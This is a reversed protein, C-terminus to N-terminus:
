RRLLPDKIGAQVPKICFNSFIAAAQYISRGADIVLHEIMKANPEFILNEPQLQIHILRVPVTAELQGVLAEVQIQAGVPM